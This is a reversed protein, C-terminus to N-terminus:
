VKEYQIIINCGWLEVTGGIPKLGLCLADGKPITLSNWAVDTFIEEYSWGNSTNPTNTQECIVTNGSTSVTYNTNTNIKYHGLGVVFSSLSASNYYKATIKIEKITMDYPAVFVPTMLSYATLDIVTTLNSNAIIDRDWGTNSQTTFKGDYLMRWKNDVNITGSEVGGGSPLNGIQVKKSTGNPDSTTDSVDVVHIFDTAEPTLLETKDTLKETAM